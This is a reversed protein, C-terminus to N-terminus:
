YFRGAGSLRERWYPTTLEGYAVTKGNQPAHVFRQDGLYIGVHSVTRRNLRFFLLDGPRLDKAAVRQAQRYQDEVTRPVDIGISKYAFYVLGSCDFGSPSEGGYRYPTGVTKVAVTAIRPGLRDPSDVATSRPPHTTCGGLAVAAVLM